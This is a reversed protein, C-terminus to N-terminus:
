GAPRSIAWMAKLKAGSVIAFHASAPYATSLSPYGIINRRAGWRGTGAGPITNEMASLKRINANITLCTLSLVYSAPGSYKAEEACRAKEQVTFGPWAKVLDDHAAKETTLCNPDSSERCSPKVDLNPVGGTGAGRGAAQGFEVSIALPGLVAALLSVAMGRKLWSQAQNLLMELPNGDLANPTKEGAGQGRYDDPDDM